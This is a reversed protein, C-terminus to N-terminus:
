AFMIDNKIKKDVINKRKNEKTIDVIEEFEVKIGNKFIKQIKNNEDCIVNCLENVNKVRILKNDSFLISFGINHNISKVTKILKLFNKTYESNFKNEFVTLEKQLEFPLFNFCKSCLQYEKECDHLTVMKMTNTRIVCNCRCCNYYNKKVKNKLGTKINKM